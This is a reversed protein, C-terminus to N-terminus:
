NGLSRLFYYVTLGFGITIVLGRLLGVPLRRGLRAGLYGGVVAAPVMSAAFTWNVAGQWVFVVVAAHLLLVIDALLQHM